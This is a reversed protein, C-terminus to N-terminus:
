RFTETTIRIVDVDLVTTVAVFRQRLTSLKLFHNKEKNLDELHIIVPKVQIAADYSIYEEM